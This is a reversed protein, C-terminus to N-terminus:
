VEPLDKQGLGTGDYNDINDSVVQQRELMRKQEEKEKYEDYAEIPNKLGIDVSEGKIVKQGVRAGIVFCSVSFFGQLAMIFGIEMASM